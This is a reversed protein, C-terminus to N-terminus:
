LIHIPLGLRLPSPSQAQRLPQPHVFCGWSNTYTAAPSLSLAPSTGTEGLRLWVPRQTGIGHQESLSPEMFVLWLSRSPPGAPPPANACRGPAKRVRPRPSRELGRRLKRPQSQNRWGPFVQAWPEKESCGSLSGKKKVQSLKTWTKIKSCCWINM